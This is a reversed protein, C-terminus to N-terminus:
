KRFQAIDIYDRPFYAGDLHDFDKDTTLLTAQQIVHTTAAIWLDNKGMNRATMGKPLPKNKLTGQSYNDIQAYAEYVTEQKVPHVLHSSLLANLQNIKRYGWGRRISLAKLEGETVASIVFRNQPNALLYNQDLYARFRKNTIAFVLINTDNVYIM